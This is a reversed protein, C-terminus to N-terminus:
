EVRVLIRKFIDQHDHDMARRAGKSVMEFQTLSRGDLFDLSAGVMDPPIELRGLSCEVPANTSAVESMSMPSHILIGRSKVVTVATKAVQQLSGIPISRHSVNISSRLWQQYCAWCVRFELFAKSHYQFEWFIELNEVM